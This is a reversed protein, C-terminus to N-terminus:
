ETDTKEEVELERKIFEIAQQITVHDDLTGRYAACVKSIIELATKKDM